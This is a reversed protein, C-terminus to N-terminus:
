AEDYVQGGTTEAVRRLLAANTELDAFEPSYPVTVGSRAGDVVQGNQLSSLMQQQEKRQKQMPRLLLFYFIGFVLILPLFNLVPNPAGAPSAQM